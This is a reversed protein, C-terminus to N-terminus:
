AARPSARWHACAGDFDIGAIVRSELAVRSPHEWLRPASGAFSGWRLVTFASGSSSKSCERFGPERLPELCDAPSKALEGFAAHSSLMAAAKGPERFPELSLGRSPIRDREFELGLEGVDVQRTCVSVVREFGDQLAVEVLETPASSRGTETDFVPSRGRGRDRDADFVPHLDRELLSDRDPEFSDVIDVISSGDVVKGLRLWLRLGLAEFVLNGGICVIWSAGMVGVGFTAGIRRLLKNRRAPLSDVLTKGVVCTGIAGSEEASAAALEVTVGWNM